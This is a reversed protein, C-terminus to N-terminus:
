WLAWDDNLLTFTFELLHPQLIGHRLKIIVTFVRIQYSYCDKKKIRNQEVSSENVWPKQLIFIHSVASVCLGRFLSETDTWIFINVVETELSGVSIYFMQQVHPHVCVNVCDTNQGTLEFHSHLKMIYSWWVSLCAPLSLTETQRHTVLQRCSLASCCLRSSISVRACVRVCM